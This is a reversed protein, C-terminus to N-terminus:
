QLKRINKKILVGIFHGIRYFNIILLEIKSAKLYQKFYYNRSKGVRVEYNYQKKLASLKQDTSTQGKHSMDSDLIIYSSIGQKKAKFQLIEEEFYLFTNPDFFGVSEWTRMNAMLLAGNLVDVMMYSIDKNPMITEHEHTHPIHKFRYSLTKNITTFDWHSDSDKSNASIFAKEDDIKYIAKNLLNYNDESIFVDPNMIMVTGDFSIDKLYKFALNNGQAYGKNEKSIILQIKSSSIGDLGMRLFKLDEVASNNDVVLIHNISKYENILEVTKLTESANNYNLIIVANRNM